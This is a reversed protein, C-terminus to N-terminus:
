IVIIVTIVIVNIVFIFFFIEPQRHSCYFKLGIEGHTARHAIQQSFVLYFGDFSNARHQTNTATQALYLVDM